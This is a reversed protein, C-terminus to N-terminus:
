FERILHFALGARRAGARVGIPTGFAVEWRGGHLVLSPTILASGDLRWPLQDSRTTYEVAVTAPGMPVLVGGSILGQDDALEM